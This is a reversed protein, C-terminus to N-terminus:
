QSLSIKNKFQFLERSKIPRGELQYDIIQRLLKKAELKQQDTMLTRNALALLTDGSITIGSQEDSNGALVGMEMDYHYFNDAIVPEGSHLEQELSLGYGLEELLDLEFYRLQIEPDMTSTMDNLYNHYRDFLGSHEEHKHLLYMILENIYFGMYLSEGELRNSKGTTEAKHLTKMESRGGWNIFILNFPQLVGQYPSKNRRAGKAVLSMRGHNRTLVEVILSTNQYPRSHLVYAQDQENLGAAESNMSMDWNSYLGNTM